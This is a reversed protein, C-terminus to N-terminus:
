LLIRWQRFVALEVNNNELILDPVGPDNQRIVFDGAARSTMTEIM